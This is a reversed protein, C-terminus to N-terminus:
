EKVKKPRGRKKPAPEEDEGGGDGSAGDFMEDQTEEISMTRETGPVMEGTDAREIHVKKRRFDKVTVCDVKREETEADLEDLLVDLEAVVLSLKEKHGRTAEKMDAKIKERDKKLKGAKKSKKRIEAETLPVPCPHKFPKSMTIDDPM